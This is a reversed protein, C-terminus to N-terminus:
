RRGGAAEAGREDGALRVVVRDLGLAQRMENAAVQLVAELELSERMRTAVQGVAQERAARLQSDEYLQAGELATSLEDTLAALLDIEEQSWLTGDPKRGDVVGIVQNRVKIPIALTPTNDDHEQVIQGTQLAMEMESRWIGAKQVTTKGDSVFALDSRVQLLNRWANRTLEGFARREAALSEQVQQFLRANRVANAVQDAVTQMVSIDEDSFFAAQESQVTMAGIVRGGARLPLALESRTEPLDPNDFHVAAEGVDLQIDAEGSLVCRGIMSDGGIALRHNRELMARGASGSGARLVAFEGAEDNLFLGVYYLNLRDQVLEVIQPLLAEIDLVATTASSVEAATMLGQTREMVRQELGALTERLQTTMQNFAQALMAIEDRGAVSAQRALDGASIAQATRALDDIPETVRRAIWLGLGGALGLGLVFAGAMVYMTPRVLPMAENVPQESVVRLAHAGMDVKYYALVVRDETLGSTLSSTAEPLVVETKDLVVTPNRHTVIRNQEDVVYLLSRGSVYANFMLDWVGSFQLEAVLVGDFESNLDLIPIAITVYPEGTILGYRVSSFYVGGTARPQEFEEQGLRNGLLASDYTKFRNIRFTEQGTSDILTFEEYVSQYSWLTNVQNIREATALNQLARTGTTLVRLENERENLFKTIATAERRAIQRQLYLAQQRQISYSYGVLLVSVVVLLVAALAVFAVTLRTRLSNRM